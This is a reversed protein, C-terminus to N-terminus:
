KRSLNILHLPPKLKFIFRTKKKQKSFLSNILIGYPFYSGFGTNLWAYLYFLHRPWLHLIDCQWLNRKSPFILLFCASLPWFVHVFYSLPIHSFILVMFLSLHEINYKGSCAAHETNTTSSCNFRCCVGYEWTKFMESRLRTRPFHLGGLCLQLSFHM